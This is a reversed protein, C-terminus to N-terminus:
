AERRRWDADEAAGEIRDVVAVQPEGLLQGITQREPFDADDRGAERGM